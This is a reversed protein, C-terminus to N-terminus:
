VAEEVELNPAGDDAEAAALAVRVDKVPGESVPVRTSHLSHNAPVHALHADDAEAAALPHSHSSESMEAVRKKLWLYKKKQVDTLVLACQDTYYQTNCYAHIPKSAAVCANNPLVHRLHGDYDRVFNVRLPVSTMFKNWVSVMNYDHTCKRLFVYNMSNIAHLPVINDTPELTLQNGM